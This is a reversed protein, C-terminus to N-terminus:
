NETGAGIQRRSQRTQFRHDSTVKGNFNTMTNRMSEQDKDSYVNFNNTKQTQSPM